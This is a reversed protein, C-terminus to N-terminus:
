VKHYYEAAGPVQQMAEPLTRPGMGTCTGDTARAAQAGDCTCNVGHAQYHHTVVTAETALLVVLVSLSLHLWEHLIYCDNRPAVCVSRLMAAMQDLHM